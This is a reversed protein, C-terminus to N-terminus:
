SNGFLGNTIKFLIKSLFFQIISLTILIILIFVGVSLFKTSIQETVWNGGFYICIFGIFVATVYAIAIGFLQKYSLKKLLNKNKFMLIIAQVLCIILLIIGISVM